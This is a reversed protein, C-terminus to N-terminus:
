NAGDRAVRANQFAAFSIMTSRMREAALGAAKEDAEDPMQRSPMFEDATRAENWGRFGTNAVMATLQGFLYETHEVMRRKARRHARALADFQRPTMGYFEDSTLGLEV